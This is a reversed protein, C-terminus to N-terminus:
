SCVYAQYFGIYVIDCLRTTLEVWKDTFHVLKSYENNPKRNITKTTEKYRLKNSARLCLQDTATCYFYYLIDRIM